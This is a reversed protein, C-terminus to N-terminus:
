LMDVAALDCGDSKSKHFELMRQGSARNVKYTGEECMRLRKLARKRPFISRIRKFPRFDTTCVDYSCRLQSWTSRFFSLPRALVGRRITNTDTGKAMSASGVVISDTTVSACMPVPRGHRQNVLRAPSPAPTLLTWGSSPQSAIAIWCFVAKMLATTGRNNNM